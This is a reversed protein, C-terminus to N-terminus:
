FLERKCLTDKYYCWIINSIIYCNILDSSFILSNIQKLYFNSQNDEMLEEIKIRWICITNSNAYNKWIKKRESWFRGLIFDSISNYMWINVIACYIAFNYVFMLWDNYSFLYDKQEDISCFYSSFLFFLFLQSYNYHM